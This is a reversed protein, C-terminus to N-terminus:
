RLIGRIFVERWEDETVGHESYHESWMDFQEKTLGTESIDDIFEIKRKVRKRENMAISEMREDTMGGSGGWTV